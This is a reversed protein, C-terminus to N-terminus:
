VCVFRAHRAGAAPGAVNEIANSQSTSAVNHTAATASPARPDSARDNHTAPGAAGHTLSRATTSAGGDVDDHGVSTGVNATSRTVAGHPATAPTSGVVSQAGPINFFRAPVNASDGLRPDVVPGQAPPLARHAIGTPAPGVAVAGPIRYFRAPMESDSTAAAPAGHIRSGVPARSPSPAGTPLASVSVNAAGVHYFHPQPVYIFLRFILRNILRPYTCLATDAVFM